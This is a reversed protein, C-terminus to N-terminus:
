RCATEGIPSAYSMRCPKNAPAQPLCGGWEDRRGDSSDSAATNLDSNGPYITKQVRGDTQCVLRLTMPRQGVRQVKRTLEGFRNCCWATSGSADTMPGLRGALYHEGAPCDAIAVDYAFAEDPVAADYDVVKLRDLADYRYPALKGNTDNEETWSRLGAIRPKTTHLRSVALRADSADPAGARARSPFRFRNLAHELV